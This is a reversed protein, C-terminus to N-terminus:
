KVLGIGQLFGSKELNDAFSNDFFEKPDASKANPFEKEDLSGLQAQIAEERVALRSAWYPAFADYTEDVMRPDEINLYKAIARKTSSPDSKALVVGAAIAKLFAYVTNPNNKLFKESAGYGAQLGPINMKSIDALLNLGAERAKLTTPPSLTGASTKGTIIATLVAPMTQVYLIKVEKDPILGAKKLAERTVIEVAARPTTAAVTKGKLQQINTIEKVGYMQFVFQQTTAGFYKVPAGRLRANSMTPGGNYIDADGSVVTQVSVQPNLIQIKVNLGYKKFLGFEQAIFVPVQAGGPQPLTVTIETKESKGGVETAAFSVSSILALLAGWPVALARWRRNQGAPSM